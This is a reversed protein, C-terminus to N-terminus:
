STSATSRAGHRGRDARRAEAAAPHDRPQHREQRLGVRRRPRPARGTRAPVLRRQRRPDDRRPDPVPRRPRQRRAPRGPRRARPPRDAAPRAHRDDSSGRTSRSACATAWCTSASRASSSPSRRPLVRAVAGHRLFEAPTPSCRGGSRRGRTPRGSAWSASARSTSSRRRSRRPDGAVILPTLANPLMHRTLVRGGSAGSPARPSSTTRSACRRAAVRAAPARLDARQHRRRRAHDAVPRPGALRRHRDRAPHGPDVAPRGDVRMLVADVKGGLGGAAAGIIVGFFLAMIVAVSASRSASRPATCSAATSTAARSTPAWSSSRPPRSSARARGTGAPGYPAIVPAFLAVFVFLMICALGFVAPKNRLLRRGADSWLGGSVRREAVPIAGPTVAPATM